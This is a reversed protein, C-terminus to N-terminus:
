YYQRFTGPWQQHPDCGNVRQAPRRFKYVSIFSTPRRSQNTNSCFGTLGKIYDNFPPGDTILSINSSVHSLNLALTLCMLTQAIVLCHIKLVVTTAVVIVVMQKM